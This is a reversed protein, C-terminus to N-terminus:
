PHLATLVGRVARLATRAEPTWFAGVYVHFGGPALRFSGRNDAEDLLAALKAVDASLIDRGGQFIHVPPLGHLDAYLPSLLPERPDHQDASWLTGAAALLDALLTPDRKQLAPIAPNAMTIDVWPSFLVVDRPPKEGNDRCTVAQGLALGGGASDGALTINEAGAERVTRRYVAMLFAYAEDVNGEPALRYLPVTLTVGTGRTMRDLVHWHPRVLPMVYAGGHTYILHRGSATGRPTLRMVPLGAVTTQTCAYRKLLSAPVPAPRPYTRSFLAAARAAPDQRVARRQRLRLLAVTVAM